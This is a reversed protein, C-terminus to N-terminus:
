TAKFFGSCTGLTPLFGAGTSTTSIWLYRYIDWYGDPKICGLHHLIDEMLLLRPREKKGSSKSERKSDSKGL